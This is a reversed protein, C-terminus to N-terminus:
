RLDLSPTDLLGFCLEARSILHSVKIFLLFTEGHGVCYAFLTECHILTFIGSRDNPTLVIDRSEVFFVLAEQKIATYM